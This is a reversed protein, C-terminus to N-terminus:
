FSVYARIKLNFSIERLCIHSVFESQLLHYLRRMIAPVPNTKYNHCSYSFIPIPIPFLNYENGPEPEPVLVTAPRKSLSLSRPLMWFRGRLKDFPSHPFALCAGAQRCGACSAPLEGLGPEWAPSSKPILFIKWKKQIQLRNTVKSM